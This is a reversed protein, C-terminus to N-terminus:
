VVSNILPWIPARLLDYKRIIPEIEFFYQSAIMVRDYRTQDLRTLPIVPRNLFENPENVDSATYAAIEIGNVDLIKSLHRAATGM